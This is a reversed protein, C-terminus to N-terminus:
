SANRSSVDGLAQAGKRARPGQLIKKRGAIEQVLDDPGVVRVGRITRPAGHRARTLCVITQVPVVVTASRLKTSLKRVARKLGWVGSVSRGGVVVRHTSAKLNGEMACVSVGFAGTTGVVCFDVAGGLPAAVVWFSWPDLGALARRVVAVDQDTAADPATKTRTFM